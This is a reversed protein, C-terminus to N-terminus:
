WRLSFSDLALRYGASAPSRDVAKVHLVHSGRTLLRQGLLQEVVQERPAYLDLPGALPEGDLRVEVVPSDPRRSWSVVLRCTREVEVTFPLRLQATELDGADLLVGAGYALFRDERLVPRPGGEVTELGAVDEELEIRHEFFPLRRPPLPLPPFPQHPEEQYWIAVGSFRDSRDM